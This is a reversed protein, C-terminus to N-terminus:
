LMHLRAMCIWFVCSGQDELFISDSFSLIGRYKNTTEIEVGRAFAHYVFRLNGVFTRSEITIDDRNETKAPSNVWLM